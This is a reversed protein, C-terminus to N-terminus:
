GGDSGKPRRRKAPGGPGRPEHEAAPPDHATDAPQGREPEHRGNRAREAALDRTLNEIIAALSANSTVVEQINELVQDRTREQSDRAATIADLLRANDETLETNRALLEAQSAAQADTTRQIKNSVYVMLPLAFLQVWGSAYYFVQAQAKAPFWTAVLPIIFFIWITWVFGFVLALKNAAVDSVRYIAAYARRLGSV